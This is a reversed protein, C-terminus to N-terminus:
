IERRIGTTPAQRTWGVTSRWHVLTPIKVRNFPADILNRPIGDDESWQEVIHHEDYGTGANQQLEKFTKPADLYAQIYPFYSKLWYVGEMALLFDGLPGGVTAELGVGLVRRLGAKFLWSAAAKLFENIALRNPPQEQPIEPLDGLSPGQKDGM